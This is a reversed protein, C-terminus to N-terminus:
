LYGFSSVLLSKVKDLPILKICKDLKPGAKLYWNARLDEKRLLDERLFNPRVPEM